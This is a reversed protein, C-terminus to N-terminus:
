TEIAPTQKRDALLVHSAVVVYVKYEVHYFRVREKQLWYLVFAPKFFSKWCLTM